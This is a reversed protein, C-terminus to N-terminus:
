SCLTSIRVVPSMMASDGGSIMSFPSISTSNPVSRTSNARQHSISSGSKKGSAQSYSLSCVAHSIASASKLIVNIATPATRYKGPPVIKIASLQSERFSSPQSQTSETTIGPKPTTLVM